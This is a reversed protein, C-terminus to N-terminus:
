QTKEEEKKGTALLAAIGFSSLIMLGIFLKMNFNDGTQPTTPGPDPKPEPEQEVVVENSETPEDEYVFVAVNKWQTDKEVQPVKVKVVLEVSHGAALTELTWTVTGEAVVGNENVSGEVLILGAPLTDKVTINKAEGNGSNTVTLIYTIEDGVKATLKQATANGGALHQEKKFSLEPSQELKNIFVLQQNNHSVTAELVGNNDVVTVTVTYVTTDYVM